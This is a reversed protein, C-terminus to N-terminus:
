GRPRPMRYLYRDHDESVRTLRKSRGLLRQRHRSLRLLANAASGRSTVSPPAILQAVVTGHVAIDVCQEPHRQVTELFRHLQRRVESAGVVQGM